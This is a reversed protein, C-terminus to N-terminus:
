LNEKIIEPHRVAIKLLRIGSGTPIRHGQEWGRLTHVSIGLAKAFETQTLDIFRRVAAIDKGTEFIGALLKARIRM